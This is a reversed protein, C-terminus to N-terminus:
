SCAQLKSLLNRIEDVGGSSLIRSFIKRKMAGAEVKKSLEHARRIIATPMGALKAANFGYSKPCPGDAYKYLFTVTEQTPDDSDENEVMCAMHGLTIRDDKHFNDVLSHYHTSFLTRCKLDALFNVVSAAIATGDYTATGRGLEDLLVLSNITAHKLIASTESLEVLFTSHGALIDDQAGLRTFIRDILTMRCRNAPIRSGIQAMVALLGVQRMLTSKGGMNPGTLITLATRPAGLTVGNPIFDENNTLCPHYGDELEMFPECDEEVIEPVCSERSNRAYEAFSTLVDLIAVNSVCQKWLDNANSFKEFIRRSLDKLVKKRQNEAVTMRKVLDKTEETHYRKIGKGGKKGQQSELQYESGAKKAFAEPIELQFRNRNTGISIKCNFYKEQLKVYEKLEVEIDNIEEEIGDFEKDVGREPAIIGQKLAEEHDFSNEFFKLDEAFDPFTGRPPNQTLSVLLDSSCKTALEPLQLLAKFGKLISIFDQIKKKGYQVEEYLIARSDPHDEFRGCSSFSHIQGLQREMDSLSGLLSRIDQLMIPRDLLETVADQRKKIVSIDCSPSCIWNHLLRKGFKTCCHDLTEILSGEEGIIRLNQLTISDLVMNQSRNLRKSAKTIDQELKVPSETSDPPIYFEYRALSLIQQDLLCRSLYFICGGLAKLGLAFNKHPTLGLHDCDDQMEKFIEPWNTGDDGHFYKEALNKLTTSGDWMQSESLPDKLANSLMTKFIQKTRDSVSNRQFLVLVPTYHALLTLMRSSHKDDVFQGIHFVGISTDIFCVGYTSSIDGPVEAIALMYQPQFDGTLQVQQGFVRTGRNTIQCIERKVVRDFKTVTKQKKCREQMMDPNETQEVRAVKYGKEVLSTAMRDYAQEPFGSHAFDGKMYTFGLENVGVIADMHYLEYFKGVKFLLICDYHQSKMVWWQYMAPTLTKLYSEPVYLTNPDYEPHNPKRKKADRINEPMLFELKNHRWVVDEEEVITTTDMVDPVENPETKTLNALKEEISLKPTEAAEKKVKKTAVPTLLPSDSNRKECNSKLNDNEQDSDESDSTIIRRRKKKQSIVEDGNEEKGNTEKPSAVPKEVSLIRKGSKSGSQATKPTSPSAVTGASPTKPTFKGSSGSAPPTRSFYNLLTNKPTDGQRKSM